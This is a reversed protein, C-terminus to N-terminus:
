SLIEVFQDSSKIGNFIFIYVFTFYYVNYKNYIPQINFIHMFHVKYSRTMPSPNSLISSFSMKGSYLLPM